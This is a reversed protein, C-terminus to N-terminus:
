EGNEKVGSFENVLDGFCRLLEKAESLEFIMEKRTKTDKIVFIKKDNKYIFDYRPKPITREM